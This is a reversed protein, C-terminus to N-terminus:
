WACHVQAIHEGPATRGRTLMKGDWEVYNTGRWGFQKGHLVVASKCTKERSFVMVSLRWKQIRDTICMWQRCKQDLFHQYLGTQFCIYALYSLIVPTMPKGVNVPNVNPRSFPEYRCLEVIVNWQGNFLVPQKWSPRTDVAEVIVLCECRM